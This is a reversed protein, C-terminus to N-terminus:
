LFRSRRRRALAVLRGCTAFRPRRPALMVGSKENVKRLKHILGSRAANLIPSPTSAVHQPPPTVIWHWPLESQGVSQVHVPPVHVDGTTLAVHLGPVLLHEEAQTSRLVSAAFQPEHPFAHAVPRVHEFLVHTAAQATPSVAQPVVQTLVSESRDCQPLQEVVHEAASVQTPPLHAHWAGPVVAHAPCHTSVSVSGFLQPAHPFIQAQPVVHTAPVHVQGTPVSSHLPMQRESTLSGCFQPAQPFAHSEGAVKQWVPAQTAEHLAVYVAQPALQMSMALSRWFQPVQASAQVPPCVQLAPDHAHGAPKTAHLPWHTSTVESAALQPAQPLAHPAPLRHTPPVHPQAGLSVEHSPPHTGSKLLGVSQPAHPTAQESVWTHASPVHADEHGEPSTSQEPAQTSTVFSGALQPAQPVAHTLWCSQTLPAQPHVVPVAHPPVHTLVSLSAVFQPSHPFAHPVPASQEDPLQTQWCPRVEHPSAHTLVFLLGALQPVHPFAHGLPWTQAFPVQAVLQGVLRVLQLPAQTSTVLL